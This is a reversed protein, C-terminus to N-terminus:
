KQPIKKFSGGFKNLLRRPHKVYGVFEKKKKKAIKLFEVKQNHKNVISVLKKYNHTKSLYHMVKDLRRLELDTLPINKLYYDWTFNNSFYNADLHSFKEMVVRMWYLIMWRTEKVCIKKNYNEVLVDSVLNAGALFNKAITTKDELGTASVNHKRYFYALINSEVTLPNYIVTQYNFLGDEGYAVGKVFSIRNNLLYERKYLTRTVFMKKYPANPKLRNELMEERQSCSFDYCFYYSEVKIRDVKGNQSIEELQKLINPAIFDDSDVFWIYNGKAIEIGKNRTDSVGSNPKDIVIINSHKEYYSNLINLSNDKSGDNVCIIEYDTIDIDQNLCSELCEELYKESNYVPIIISLFM